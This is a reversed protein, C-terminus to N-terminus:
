PMTLAHLTNTSRGTSQISKAAKLVRRSIKVSGIPRGSVSFKSLKWRAHRTPRPVKMKLEAYTVVSATAKITTAEPMAAYTSARESM